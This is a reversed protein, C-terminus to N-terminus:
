LDSAAKKAAAADGQREQQNMPKSSMMVLADSTASSETYTAVVRKTSWWYKDVYPNRKEGPGYQANLAGLLARSNTYGKAEITIYSLKGRYFFYTIGSLQADGVMLKDGSRLYMRTDKDKAQLVLDKFDSTDAEFHADRFGYKEELVKLSPKIPKDQAYATFNVLFLSAVIAKM